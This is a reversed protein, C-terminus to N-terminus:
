CTDQRWIPDGAKLVGGHIVKAFVGERPMICDGMLRFIECGQHCEKGIQTVELIVTGSCLRTGVPCAKVDLGKVILNEGFAGEKVKAGRKKFAEIKEFSLLSIQRHWTGAHADGEIGHDKIVIVQDTSVKPTGKSLSTCVAKIEGM